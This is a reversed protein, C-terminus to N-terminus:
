YHRNDDRTEFFNTIFALWRKEQVFDGLNSGRGQVNIIYHTHSQYSWCTEVAHWTGDLDMWLKTSLQCLFMEKRLDGRNLTLTLYLILHLTYYRREGCWIPEYIDSLMGVNVTKSATLFCCNNGKMLYIVSLLLRLNNLKLHEIVMM